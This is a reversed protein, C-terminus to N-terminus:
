ASAAGWTSCSSIDPPSATVRRAVARSVVLMLVPPLHQVVRLAGTDASTRLRRSGLVMRIARRFTTFCRWLFRSPRFGLRKRFSLLLRAEASICCSASALAWPISEAERLRWDRRSGPAAGVGSREGGTPRGSGWAGGSVGGEVGESEGQVSEEAGQEGAPAEGRGEERWPSLCLSCMFVLFRCEGERRFDTPCMGREGSARVGEGEGSGEEGVREGEGSARGRPWWGPAEWAVWDKEGPEEMAPSVGVLFDKERGL